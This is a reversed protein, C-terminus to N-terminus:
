LNLDRCVVEGRPAETITKSMDSINLHFKIHRSSEEPDGLTPCLLSGSTYEGLTLLPTMSAWPTVLTSTSSPDNEKLTRYVKNTTCLRKDYAKFKDYQEQDLLKYMHQIKASIRSLGDVLGLTLGLKKGTSLM